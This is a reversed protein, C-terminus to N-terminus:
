EGMIRAGIRGRSEGRAADKNVIEGMREVLRNAISVAAPTGVTWVDAWASYLPDVDRRMWADLDMPDVPRRIRLAADLGEGLGSRMEMTVRLMWGSHVMLGTAAILQAYAARRAGALANRETRRAQWLAIGFAALGTLSSAGIAAVVPAWLDSNRM